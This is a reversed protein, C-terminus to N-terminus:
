IYTSSYFSANQHGQLDGYILGSRLRAANHLIDAGVFFLPFHFSRHLIVVHTHNEQISECAKLEAGKWQIMEEGAQSGTNGGVSM